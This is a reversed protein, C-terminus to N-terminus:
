RQCRSADPNKEMEADLEALETKVDIDRNKSIGSDKRINLFDEFKKM